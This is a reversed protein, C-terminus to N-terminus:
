YGNPIELLAQEKKLILIKQLDEIQARACNSTAPTAAILAELEPITLNYPNIM